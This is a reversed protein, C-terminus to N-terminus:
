LTARKHSKRKKFQEGFRYFSRIDDQLLQCEKSVHHFLSLHTQLACGLMVADVRRAAHKEDVLYSVLEGGTFCDAYSQMNKKRSTCKIASRVNEAIVQLTLSEEKIQQRYALLADQPGLSPYPQQLVKIGGCSCGVILSTIPEKEHCGLSLASISDGDSTYRDAIGLNVVNFCRPIPREAPVMFSLVMGDKGCTNFTMMKEKSSGEVVDRGTIISTIESSHAGSLGILENHVIEDKAGSGNVNWIRLDGGRTGSVFYQEGLFSLSTIGFQMSEKCKHLELPQRWNFVRICHWMKPSGRKFVNKIGKWLTVSGMRDGALLMSKGPMTAVSEVVNDHELEQVLKIEAVNEGVTMEEKEEKKKDNHKVSWVKVTRHAGTISAFQLSCAIIQRERAARQVSNSGEKSAKKTVAAMMSWDVNDTPRVYTGDDIMAITDVRRRMLNEFTALLVQHKRALQSEEEGEESDNCNFRSDWLMVTGCKSGSLFRGKRDVKTLCTIGTPCGSFDRIFTISTSCEDREGNTLKWMKINRDAVAATLFCGDGLMVISSVAEKSNGKSVSAILSGKSLDSDQSSFSPLSTLTSSALTSATKKFTALSRSPSRSMDTSERIIGCHGSVHTEVGRVSVDPSSGDVDEERADFMEAFKRGEETSVDVFQGNVFTLKTKPLKVLRDSAPKLIQSETNRRELNPRSAVVEDDGEDISKSTTRSISPPSLISSLEATEVTDSCTTGEEPVSSLRKPERRKRTKRRKNKDKPLDGFWEGEDSNPPSGFCLAKCFPSPCENQASSQNNGM